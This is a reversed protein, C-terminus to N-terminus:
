RQADDGGDFANTHGYTQDNVHVDTHPSFVEVRGFGISLIPSVWIAGDTPQRTEWDRASDRGSM